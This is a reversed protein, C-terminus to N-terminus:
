HYSGSTRAGIPLVFFVLCENLHAPAQLRLDHLGLAFGIPRPLARSL